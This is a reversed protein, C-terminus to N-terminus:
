DPLACAMRPRTRHNLDVRRFAFLIVSLSSLRHVTFELYSKVKIRLARISSYSLLYLVQNTILRNPTRNERGASYIFLKRLFIQSLPNVFGFSTEINPVFLFSRSRSDSRCISIKPKIKITGYSLQYLLHSNIVGDRTRTWTPCSFDLGYPQTFFQTFAATSSM